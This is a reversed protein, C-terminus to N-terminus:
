TQRSLEKVFEPKRNFGTTDLVRTIASVDIEINYGRGLATLEKTIKNEEVDYFFPTGSKVGIKVGKGFQDHVVITFPEVTVFEAPKPSPILSGRYVNKFLM